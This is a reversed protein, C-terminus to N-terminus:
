RKQGELAESKKFKSTEQSKQGETHALALYLM